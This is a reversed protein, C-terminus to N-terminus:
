MRAGLAAGGAVALIGVVNQFLFNGFALWIHGSGLLGYTEAAFTSFTTFAGIFGSMMLVRTADDVRVWRQPLTLLVGFVFCGLLNVVITGLPIPGSKLDNCFGSLFYRALTGLTGTVTLLVVKEFLSM